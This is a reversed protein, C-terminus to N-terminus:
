MRLSLQRVRVRQSIILFFAPFSDRLPAAIRNRSVQFGARFYMRYKASARQESSCAQNKRIHKTEEPPIKGNVQQNERQSEKQFIKLSLPLQKFNVTHSPPPCPKTKQVRIGQGRIEEIQHQQPDPFFKSEMSGLAMAPRRSVATAMYRSVSLLVAKRHLIRRHRSIITSAFYPTDSVIVSYTSKKEGSSRILM